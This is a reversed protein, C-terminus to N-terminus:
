NNKFVQWIKDYTISAAVLTLIVVMLIGSETKLLVLPNFLPSEGSSVLAISALLYSLSYVLFVNKILKMILRKTFSRNAKIDCLFSINIDRQLCDIHELYLEM